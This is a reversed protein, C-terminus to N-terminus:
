IIKKNMIKNFYIKFYNLYKKYKILFFENDNFIDIANIFFNFEGTFLFLKDKIRKRYILRKFLENTMDKEHKTNKSFNFVNMLHIFSFKM